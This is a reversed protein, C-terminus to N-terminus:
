NWKVNPTLKYIGFGVFVATLLCIIISILDNPNTVNEEMSQYKIMLIFSVTNNLAHLLICLWLSRTRYYVYAFVAGLMGAGLFQWPNMHAMGFLLSSLIIAGAPNMNNQLMGRLLIGRFLIEEFFPAIICVTIFGAVKYNLMIEFSDTTSRYLEELFKNGTTPFLSTLFEAFPFTFVYLAISLLLVWIKPTIKLHELIHTWNIRLYTILSVIALLGGLLFSLPLSIHYLNHWFKVPYNIIIGTVVLSMIIVFAVLFAKGFDIKFQSPNAPPFKNEEFNGSENM